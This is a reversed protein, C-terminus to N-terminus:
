RRLTLVEYLNEVSVYNYNNREHKGMRHATVTPRYYYQYFSM